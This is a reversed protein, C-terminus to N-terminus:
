ETPRSYVLLNPTDNPVSAVVNRSARELLALKLRSPSNGNYWSSSLYAAATGSVYPTALSTGSIDKTKGGGITITHVKEGPALCKGHNSAWNNTQAFKDNRDTAGVVVIDTQVLNCGFDQVATKVAKDVAKSTTFGLSMNIVHGRHGHEKCKPALYELARILDDTTGEGKDNLLKVDVIRAAKAVGAWEGAIVGAVSTGHGHYDGDKFNRSAKWGRVARGGFDPHEIEVGSDVVYATVGEGTADGAYVFPSTYKPKDRSSIRVLGWPARNQSAAIRGVTQQEVGVVYPIAQIAELVATSQVDVSAAEFESGIRMSHRVCPSHEGSISLCADNIAAVASRLTANPAIQAIFVRPWHFSKPPTTAIERDAAPYAAAGCLLVACTVFVTIPLNMRSTVM